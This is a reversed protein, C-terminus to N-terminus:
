EIIKSLKFKIHVFIVYIFILLIFLIFSLVIYSYIRDYNTYKSTNDNRVIFLYMNYSIHELYDLSQFSYNDKVTYFLKNKLISIKRMNDHYMGKFGFCISRFYIISMENDSNHHSSIHNNINFIVKEGSISTMFITKEILYKSWESNQLESIALEDFFACLLLIFDSVQTKNYNNAIESEINKIIKVITSHVVSCVNEENQLRERATDDVRILIDDSIQQDFTKTKLIDIYLFTQDVFQDFIALRSLSSYKM